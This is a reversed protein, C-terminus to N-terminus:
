GPPFFRQLAQLYRHRDGRGLGRGIPINEKAFFVAGQLKDHENKNFVRIHYPGDVLPKPLTVTLSTASNVTIDSMEVPLPVVTFTFGMEDTLFGMGGAVKTGFIRGLGEVAGVIVPKEPDSVDIMQLIGKGDSLYVTHGTLEIDRATVESLELSAVLTPNAPNSVDIVSLGGDAVYAMGDVVVVDAPCDALELSGVILPEAPDSADIIQLSRHVNKGPHWSRCTIIM